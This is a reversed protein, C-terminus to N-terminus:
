QFWSAISPVTQYRSEQQLKWCAKCFMLAWSFSRPRLTERWRFYNLYSAHDKDLALLYQALDKPSRFDEVHIFAKPPLFQEYNVRSPGLVVPVAWAQLANKWLKETIYDPHLSNEFALYFKYQSLQKAMLKYPLPTHSRGYVDVQLHPKLLEYYQVRTSDKRWNSVVWAVLKTKASINLLTEVPQGSWPELWGYPMFIDSDRRYSMTLNFYGDLDKLKLCNSPSEMSFWVWRQGPPRPSPPLQMQPRNSVERHHVLVADAQPYESRNVTLQCDATGPWLESCRSLAVPQNFPWTWLLVRLPPRASSGETAQSPAGLESVWTLKPKDQSVRLYSFFCLALLLQLLLGPLCHHWSCKVKACGPPYMSQLLKSEPDRKM